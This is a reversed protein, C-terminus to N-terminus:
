YDRFDRERRSSRCGAEVLHRNTGVEQSVYEQARYPAEDGSLTAKAMNNTNIPDNNSPVKAYDPIYQNAKEIEEKKQEEQRLYEENQIVIHQLQQEQVQQQQIAEQALMEAHQEAQFNLEQQQQIAQQEQLEAQQIAQLQLEQEHQMAQLQLEQQHQVFLDDMINDGLYDKKFFFM